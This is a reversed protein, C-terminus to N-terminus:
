VGPAEVAARLLLRAVRAQRLDSGLVDRLELDGPGIVRAVGGLTGLHLARGDDDVAYEIRDAGLQAHEREVGGGAFFEPREKGRGVSRHSPVTGTADHVPGVAVLGADVGRSILTEVR